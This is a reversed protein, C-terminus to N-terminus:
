FIKYNLGLRITNLSENVSIRQTNVIAVSPFAPTAGALAVRDFEFKTSWKDSLAYEIGLGILLGAGTINASGDGLKLGHTDGRLNYSTSAGAGGIKTYLLSNDWAFGGRAALDFTSNVLHQCNLGGLGSFCTNEGRMDTWDGEAEIGAVWKGTQWNAGVQVGALPGTAHTSDGFGAFNTSGSVITAGFPDSWRANSFGGGLNGGVYAGTWNRPADVAAAGSSDKAGSPLDGFHYATQLYFGYRELNYRSPEEGMAPSGLFDFTTSGTQMNWAWYRAGAGVSWNNSLAYDLSADLMIGDGKSSREPLLLQRFNHDDEGAFAVWPLYAADATFKLRDTLMFQSSLGLRLSNYTDSQTLGDASQPASSCSYDGAIQRCGYSNNADTYYNYGVFAGFKAGATKLFSYGLDVNAYGISGQASSLTNSYVHAAPFDEDNQKGGLVGGAGLFGKAFFGSSNDIRAYTEGSIADVDSFVIRSALISPTPPSNLLPNPAGVVGRSFWSRAGVEFEWNSGLGTPAAWGPAGIAPGSNRPNFWYDLGIRAINASLDGSHSFPQKPINSGTQEATTGAFGLHLYEARLSLNPTLGWEVGGGLAYGAKVTNLLASAAAGFNDSFMYDTRLDTLAVGGTGYLLWNDVAFGIRPRLTFLWNANGYSSLLFQSKPRGPYEASRNSVGNLHLIDFDAELGGVFHGFRWNYGVEAGASFGSSDLSQVGLNNVASSIIPTPGFYSGPSTSTIAKYSGPAAGTNAGVYLGGWDYASGVEPAPTQASAVVLTSLFAIGAFLTESHGRM